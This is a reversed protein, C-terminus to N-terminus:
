KRIALLRHAGLATERIRVTWDSPHLGLGEALENGRFGAGVSVHADHRTIPHIGLLRLLRLQWQHCRRRVPECAIITRCEPHLMAGLQRLSDPEFHHLILNAIVIAARLTPSRRDLLNRSSWSITEPLDPPPPAQDIVTLSFAPLSTRRADIMRALSGDGGGWEVLRDGSRVLPQLQRLIWRHNGMLGNIMQLDRRARSVAPDDASLRDLIEPKVIRLM